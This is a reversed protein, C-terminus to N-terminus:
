FDDYQDDTYIFEHDIHKLVAELSYREFASLKAEVKTYRNLIAEIMEGDNKYLLEHLSSAVEHYYTDVYFKDSGEKLEYTRRSEYCCGDGCEWEYNRAIITLKEM